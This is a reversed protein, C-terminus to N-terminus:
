RSIPPMRLNGMKRFIVANANPDEMVGTVIMTGIFSSKTSGRGGFLDYYTHLGEKVDWYVPYFAPAILSSLRVGDIKSM